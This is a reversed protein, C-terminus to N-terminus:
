GSWSPRSIPSASPSERPTAATSSSTEGRSTDSARLEEELGRAYPAVVEPTVAVLYGISFSKASQQAGAALPAALCSGAVAIFHRRSIM